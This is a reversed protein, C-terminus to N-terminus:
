SVVEAESINCGITMAPSADNERAWADIEAERRADETRAKHKERIMNRLYKLSTKPRGRTVTTQYAADIDELTCGDRLLDQAITIEEQSLFDTPRGIAKLIQRHDISQPPTPPKQKKEGEGEKDEEKDGEGEGEGEQAPTQRSNTTINDRNKPKRSSYEDRYKLLNGCTISFNVRGDVEIREVQILGIVGLKGLLNSVKNHHLYLHRSLHPLPYTVTCYGGENGMQKAVMELVSWYFGYGEMGAEEILRVIKEDDRTDTRHKFWKM